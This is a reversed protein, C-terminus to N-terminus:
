IVPLIEQFMRSQLLTGNTPMDPVMSLLGWARARVRSVFDQLVLAALTELKKVTVRLSVRRRLDGLSARNASVLISHPKFYYLVQLNGPELVATGYSCNELIV